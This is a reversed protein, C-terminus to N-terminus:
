LKFEVREQHYLFTAKSENIEVLQAGEVQASVNLFYVKGTTKSEVILQPSKEELLVGKIEILDKLELDNKEKNRGSESGAGWKEKEFFNQFYDRGELGQRYLVFSDSEESKEEHNDSISTELGGKQFQEFRALDFSEYSKWRYVLFVVLALNVVLLIRVGVWFSRILMDSGYKEDSEFM